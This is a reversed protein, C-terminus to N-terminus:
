KGGGGGDGGPTAGEMGALGEAEASSMGPGGVAGGLGGMGVGEEASIGSTAGGLGGMAMGEEASISIGPDDAMGWGPAQSIANMTEDAMTAPAIGVVSPPMEPTVAKAIEPAVFARAFGKGMGTAFGIPGLGLFGMAMEKGMTSLQDMTAYNGEDAVTSSEVGSGFSPSPGVDGGTDYSPTLPAVLGETGYGYQPVNAPPIELAAREAELASFLPAYEAELAATKKAYDDYLGSLDANYSASLSEQATPFIPYKKAQTPPTYSIGKGTTAYLQSKLGAPM